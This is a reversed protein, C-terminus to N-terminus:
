LFRTLIKRAKKLAKGRHSIKNKEEPKFQATTKRLYPLFFIPDYGFGYKGKPQWNIKGQCVGECTEIKKNKPNFIAIVCRFQADRKPWPTTKLEKLLKQNRDKDSKAYRSSFVGPRGGLAEVELGSDDALTILGTMEGFKKAKLIANELFTEGTERVAFNKPITKVKNLSLFDFPLDELAKKIELFKGQNRTAILLKKM